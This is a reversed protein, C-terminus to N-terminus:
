LYAYQGFKVIMSVGPNMRFALDPSLSLVGSSIMAM